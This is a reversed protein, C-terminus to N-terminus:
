CTTPRGASPSAREIRGTRPSRAACNWLFKRVNEFTGVCMARRAVKTLCCRATKRTSDTTSPTNSDSAPANRPDRDNRPSHKGTSEPGATHMQAFTAESHTSITNKIEPSCSSLADYLCNTDFPAKSPRTLMKTSVGMIPAAIQTDEPRCGTSNLFPSASNLMPGVVMDEPVTMTASAPPFMASHKNRVITVLATAMKVMGSMTDQSESLVPVGGKGMADSMTDKIKLTSTGKSTPLSTRSDESAARLNTLCQFTGSLIVDLMALQM